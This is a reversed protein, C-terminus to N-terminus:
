LTLQMLVVDLWKDHKYGVSKLHGSTSFGAQRHLRISANSDHDVGPECAVIGIMQRYDSQKCNQILQSLLSRAVGKRWYEPSVYVTDEVTKEYAPRPRYASAYAYGAIAGDIEAVLYPYNREVLSKMRALMDPQTPPTLEFSAIDEEVSRRYIESIEGIDQTCAPRIEM